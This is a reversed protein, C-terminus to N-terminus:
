VTQFGRVWKRVAVGREREEGDLESIRISTVGNCVHPRNWVVQRDTCEKEDDVLRRATYKVVCLLRLIAEDSLIEKATRDILFLEKNRGFKAMYVTSQMISQNWRESNMADQFFVSDTQRQFDRIRVHDNNQEFM